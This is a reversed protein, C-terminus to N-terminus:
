GEGERAAEDEESQGTEYFRTWDFGLTAGIKKAVAVSPNRLGNEIYSYAVQSIECEESVDKQTRNTHERLEKLWGM